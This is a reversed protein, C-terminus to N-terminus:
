LRIDYRAKLEDSWDDLITLGYADAIASYRKTWEPGHERLVPEIEEFYREMGGPLVVELVRAPRDSVNWMAHAVARPKILWSGTPVEETTEDGARAGIPGSIVFSFEDEHTHMHPKILTRPPITVELMSLRGETADAAVGYHFITDNLKVTGAEDPRIVRSQM